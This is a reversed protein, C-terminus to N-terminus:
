DLSRVSFEEVIPAPLPKLIEYNGWNEKLIGDKVMGAISDELKKNSNSFNIYKKGSDNALKIAMAIAEGYPYDDLSKKRVDPLIYYLFGAVDQKPVIVSHRESSRSKGIRYVDQEETFYKEVVFKTAM